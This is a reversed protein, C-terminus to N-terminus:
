VPVCFRPSMMLTTTVALSPTSVAEASFLTVMLSVAGTFPVAEILGAVAYLPSVRLALGAPKVSASPSLKM